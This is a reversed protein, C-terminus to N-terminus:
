RDFRQMVWRAVILATSFGLCVGCIRRPLPAHTILFAVWASTACALLMLITTWIIVASAPPQKDSKMATHTVPQRAYQLM